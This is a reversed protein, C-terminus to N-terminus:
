KSRKNVIRRSENHEQQGNRQTQLQCDFPQRAGGAVTFHHRLFTNDPFRRDPFRRDPFRRTRSVDTRSVDQGPFHSDPFRGCVLHFVATVCAMHTQCADVPLSNMSAYRGTVNFGYRECPFLPNM